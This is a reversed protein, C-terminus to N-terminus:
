GWGKFVFDACCLSASICSAPRHSNSTIVVFPETGDRASIVKDQVPAHFSHNNLVELLANPLESEAKDIEDILLVSRKNSDVEESYASQYSGKSEKYFQKASAANYSWWIAGPVVFKEENILSLPDVSDKDTIVGMIQAQSLRKVHDIRYLLETPETGSHVVHMLLNWDQAVAVAHAIQSKGLGPDGKVLLPRGISFATVIADMVENNFRHYSPRLGAKAPLSFVDKALLKQEFENVSIIEM